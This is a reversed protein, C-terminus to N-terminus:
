GKSRISQRAAPPMSSRGSMRRPAATRSSRSSTTVSNCCAGSRCARRRRSAPSRTPTPPWRAPPNRPPRRSRRRAPSRAAAEAILAALKEVAQVADPGAARVEVVDGQRTSLGMIAVLSKANAQDGGRILHIESVFAKAAAALVAAPRAHLGAPNPLSIGPSLVPAGGGAKGDFGGAVAGQGDALALDLIVDKGAEVLGSRPTMRAVKEPNAIVIETLLSRAMRAVLDADFGIVPQGVEVRDGLKVRPAFGEGRLTVTDLGIHVLVEIGGDTLITLAHHANHLQTVTGAVPALLVDSTPDLSIGDGVMKQAFVPDPVQELPWVQGSLPALVRLQSVAAARRPELEVTATV